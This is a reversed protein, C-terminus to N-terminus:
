RYHIHGYHYSPSNHSSQSHMLPPYSQMTLQTLSNHHPIAAHHATHAKHISTAAHHLHLQTPSGHSPSTHTLMHNYPPTHLGHTLQLHLTAAHYHPTPSCATPLLQMTLHSPSRSSFILLIPAIPHSPHMPPPIPQTRAIHMSHALQTCTTVNLFYLM